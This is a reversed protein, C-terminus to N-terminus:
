EHHYQWLVANCHSHVAGITLGTKHDHHLHIKHKFFHVPLLKRNIWFMSVKASPPGSLQGNCHYCRGGQLKVYEQRVMRRRQHSLADYKVPLKVRDRRHKRQDVEGPVKGM